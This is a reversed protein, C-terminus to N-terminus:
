TYMIFMEQRREGGVVSAATGWLPTVRVSGAVGVPMVNNIGLLGLLDSELKVASCGIIGM